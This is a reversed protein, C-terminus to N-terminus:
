KWQWKYIVNTFEAGEHDKTFVWPRLGHGLATLYFLVGDASYVVGLVRLWLLKGGALVHPTAPTRESRRGGGLRCAAPCRDAGSRGGAGGRKGHIISGHRQQRGNAEGVEGWGVLPQVDTPEAGGARGAVNETSSVNM